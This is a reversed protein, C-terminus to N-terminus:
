TFDSYIPQFLGGPHGQILGSQGLRCGSGDGLWWDVTPRPTVEPLPETGSWTCDRLAWGCHEWYCPLLDKESLVNPHCLVSDVDSGGRMEVVLWTPENNPTRMVKRRFWQLLTRTKRSVKKVWKWDMKWVAATICKRFVSGTTGNKMKFGCSPKEDGTHNLRSRWCGVGQGQCVGWFHHRKECTKQNKRQWM